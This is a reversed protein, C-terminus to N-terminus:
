KNNEMFIATTPHVLNKWEGGNKFREFVLTSSVKELTPDAEVFVTEVGSRELNFEAMKKEYELDKENRVGKFLVANKQLILYEYLWGSHSSVSVNKIEKTAARLMELRLPTPFRPTKDFNECLLVEVEEYLESARKVLDLHGITVPDFSGAIIAKM